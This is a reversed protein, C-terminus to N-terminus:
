RARCGGTPAARATVHPWEGSVDLSEWDVPFAERSRELLYVLVRYGPRPYIKQFSAAIAVVGARSTVVETTLMDKWQSDTPSSQRIVVQIRYPYRVPKDM